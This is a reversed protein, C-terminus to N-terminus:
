NRVIGLYSLPNKSIIKSIIKIFTVKDIVFDQLPSETNLLM